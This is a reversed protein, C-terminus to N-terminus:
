EEKIYLTVRELYTIEGAKVTIPSAGISSVMKEEFYPHDVSFYVVYTGPKLQTAFPSIEDGIKYSTEGVYETVKTFNYLKSSSADGARITLRFNQNGWKYPTSDTRLMGAIAGCVPKAPEEEAEEDEGKAKKFMECGSFLPLGIILITMLVTIKRM